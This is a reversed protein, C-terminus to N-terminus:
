LAGCGDKASDFPQKCDNAPLPEPNIGGIQAPAAAFAIGVSIANCPDTPAGDFLAIDSTSCVQQALQEFVQTGPCVQEGFIRLGTLQRLVDDTAWKGALVGDELAFQGDAPGKVVRGTVFVSSITILFDASVQFPVERSTGDVGKPGAVLISDRVYANNDVSIPKDIDGDVVGYSRVPWADTGDWKPPSPLKTGVFWAASVSPDDPLGNYGSIRLVVTFKGADVADQIGQSSVEALFPAAALFLARAGRDEGQPGDTIAVQNTPTPLLCRSATDGECVCNTCAGDLDYGAVTVATEGFDFDRLAVVFSVDGAGGQGSSGASPPGPPRRSVCPASAGAAGAADGGAGSQAAGAVGAGAAGAGDGGAGAGAGAVGATGGVTSAGGGGGAGGEAGPIPALLSDDYYACAAM